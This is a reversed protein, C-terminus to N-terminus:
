APIAIDIHVFNSAFVVVGLSRKYLLKPVAAWNKIDAESLIVILGERSTQVVCHLPQNVEALRKLLASQPLALKEHPLISMSAPPWVMM